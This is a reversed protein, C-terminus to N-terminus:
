RWKGLVVELRLREGGRLIEVPVKDGASHQKILEILGDFNAVKQGDFAVIVDGVKVGAKDAAAGPTVQGIHCGEGGTFDDSGAIGLFADGREQVKLEPMDGLLAQWAADSIGHGRIKYVAEVRKLRRVYKLGDDGGKWEPGIQLVFARPEDAPQFQLRGRLEAADKFVAGLRQLAAMAREERFDANAELVAQARASVLPSKLGAVVELAAEVDDVVEATRATYHAELIAVARAAVELNSSQAAKLLPAIAARGAELLKRSAEQRLAYRDSNLQEVLEVITPTPASADDARSPTGGGALLGGLVVGFWALCCAKM